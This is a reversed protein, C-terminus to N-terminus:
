LTQPWSHGNGSVTWRTMGTWSGSDATTPTTASRAATPATSTPTPTTSTTSTSLTPNLPRRRCSLGLSRRRNRKWNEQCLTGWTSANVAPGFSEATQVTQNGERGAGLSTLDRPTQKVRTTELLWFSNSDNWDLMGTLRLSVFWFTAIPSLETRRSQTQTVIPIWSWTLFGSPPSKLSTSKHPLWSSSFLIVM